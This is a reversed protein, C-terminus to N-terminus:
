QAAPSGGGRLAALEARLAKVEDLIHRQMTAADEQKEAIDTVGEEIQTVDRELEEVDAQIEESVDLRTQGVADVIVGIFLNLVAFAAIVTFTILFTWAYPYTDDLRNITEGWSDFQSLQFLTLGSKGLDAFGPDAPFLTTGMVAGIYFVVILVM